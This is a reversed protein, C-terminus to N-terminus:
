NYYYAIHFTHFIPSKVSVFASNIINHIETSFSQTFAFKEVLKKGFFVKECKKVSRGRLTKFMSRRLNEVFVKAM